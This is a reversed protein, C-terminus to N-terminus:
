TQVLCLRGTSLKHSESTKDEGTRGVHGMHGTPLAIVMLKSAIVM